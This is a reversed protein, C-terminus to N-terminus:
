AIRVFSFRAPPPIASASTEPVLAALRTPELGVRRVKVLGQDSQDPDKRKPQSVAVPEYAARVFYVTAQRLSADAM